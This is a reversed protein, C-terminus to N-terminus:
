NLYHGRERLFKLIKFNRESSNLVGVYIHAYKKSVSRVPRCGNEYAYKLVEFHGKIIAVDCTNASFRCGNEHLYKFIELNGHKVACYSTQKDWYCKNKHAYKLLDLWGNDAAINCIDSKSFQTWENNYYIRENPCLYSDVINRLCIPLFNM